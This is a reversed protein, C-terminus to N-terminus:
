VMSAPVAEDTIEEEEEKIEQSKKEEEELITFDKPLLVTSSPSQQRLSDSMAVTSLHKSKSAKATM